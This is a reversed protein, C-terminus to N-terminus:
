QEVDEEAEIRKRIMRAPVGGVISNEEVDHTVVAGAGVVSGSGITVGSLLSAKAGIWVNDRIVIRGPVVPQFKIPVDAAEYGHNVSIVSTGHAISVDNGIEVGGYGEIYCMPHISVNNGFKINQPNFIFVNQHISVNDGVEPSISKLLAYRVALGLNGQTNRHKELLWKRTRKPLIGYCKALVVLAKRAKAFKEQGRM